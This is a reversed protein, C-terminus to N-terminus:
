RRLEVDVLGFRILAIYFDKHITKSVKILKNRFRKIPSHGRTPKCLNGFSEVSFLM